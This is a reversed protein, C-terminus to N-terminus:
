LITVAELFRGQESYVIGLNSMANESELHDKGKFETLIELSKLYNEEAKKM